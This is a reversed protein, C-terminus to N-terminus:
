AAPGRGPREVLELEDRAFDALWVTLGDEDVMEVVVPATPDRPDFEHCITGMDGIAPPRRVAESGDYRREAMLLKSVRVVDYERLASREETITPTISEAVRRRIPQDRVNKRDLLLFTLGAILTMVFLITGALGAGRLGAGLLRLTLAWGSLQRQSTIALLEGAGWAVAALLLGIASFRTWRPAILRSFDMQTVLPEDERHRDPQTM